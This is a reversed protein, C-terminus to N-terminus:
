SISCSSATQLARNDDSGEARVVFRIKSLSLQSFVVTTTAAGLLLANM